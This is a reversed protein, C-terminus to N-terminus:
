PTLSHFRPPRPKRNQARRWPVRKTMRRLRIILTPRQALLRSSSAAPWSTRGANAVSSTAVSSTASWTPRAQRAYSPLPHVASLSPLCLSSLYIHLRSLLRSQHQNSQAISSFLSACSDDTLNGRYFNFRACESLNLISVYKCFTGKSRVLERMPLQAAYRCLEKLDSGSFSKTRQALENLDVSEDMEVGRLTHKLIQVRAEQDPLGIRFSRSFRRDTRSRSM